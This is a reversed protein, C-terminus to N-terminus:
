ATGRRAPRDPTPGLREQARRTFPGPPRTRAARAFAAGAADDNGLAAHAEGLFFAREGPSPVLDADEDDATRLLHPLASAPDGAALLALGLAYAALPDDPDGAAAERALAVARAVPTEGPAPAGALSDPRLLGVPTAAGPIEVPSSAHVGHGETEGRRVLAIALLASATTREDDGLAARAEELLPVAAAGDAAALHAAALDVAARARTRRRRAAAHARTAVAIAKAPDGRDLHVDLLWTRLAATAPWGFALAALLGAAPRAPGEVGAVTAVAAGAIGLGAVAAIGEFSVRV